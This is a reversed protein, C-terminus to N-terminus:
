AQQRFGAAVWRGVAFVIGALLWFLGVTAADILFLFPVGSYFERVLRTHTDTARAYCEQLLERATDYRHNCISLSTDLRDNHKGIESFFMWGGFGVFWIVSLVVGIRRWGRM